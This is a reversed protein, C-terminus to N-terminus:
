LSLVGAFNLDPFEASLSVLGFGHGCRLVVDFSFVDNNVAVLFIKGGVIAHGCFEFNLPPDPLTSWKDSEIDFVQFRSLKRASRSAQLPM